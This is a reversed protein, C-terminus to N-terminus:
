VSINNQIASDKPRESLSVRDRYGYHCTYIRNYLISAKCLTNSLIFDNGNEKM